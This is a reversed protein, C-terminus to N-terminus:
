PGAGPYSRGTRLIPLAQLRRCNCAAALAGGGVMLSGMAWAWDSGMVYAANVLEGISVLLCATSVLWLDFGFMPRLRPFLAVLTVGIMALALLGLGLRGCVDSLPQSYYHPAWLAKMTAAVGLGLGAWGLPAARLQRPDRVLIAGLAVVGVCGALSVLPSGSAAASPRHAALVLTGIGAIWVSIGTQLTSLEYEVLAPRAWSMVADAVRQRAVTWPGAGSTILDSEWSQWLRNRVELEDTPIGRDAVRQLWGALM